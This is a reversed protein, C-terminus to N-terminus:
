AVAAVQKCLTATEEPSLTWTHGCVIAFVPVPNGKQVETRSCCVSRKQECEKCYALFNYGDPNTASEQPDTPSENPKSYAVAEDREKLSVYGIKWPEAVDVIHPEGACGCCQFNGKGPPASQGKPVARDLLMYHHASDAGYLVDPCGVYYVAYDRNEESVKNRRLEDHPFLFGGTL